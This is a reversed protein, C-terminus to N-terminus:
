EAVVAGWRINGMTGTCTLRLRWGGNKSELVGGPPTWVGAANNAVQLATLPGLWVVQTGGDWLTAATIPQTSNDNFVGIAFLKNGAAGPSGLNIDAASTVANGNVYAGPSSTEILDLPQNEGALLAALSVPLAAGDANGVTLPKLVGTADEYAIVMRDPM